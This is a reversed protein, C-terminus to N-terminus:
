LSPSDNQLTLKPTHLLCLAHEYEVEAIPRGKAAIRAHISRAGTQSSDVLDAIRM